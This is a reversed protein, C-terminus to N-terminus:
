WDCEYTDKIDQIQVREETEKGKIQIIYDGNGTINIVAGERGDLLFVGDFIDVAPAEICNYRLERRIEEEAIEVSDTICGGAIDCVWYYSDSYSTSGDDNVWYEQELSEGAIDLLGDDRRHIHARHIKNNSYLFHGPFIVLISDFNIDQRQQCYEELQLCTDPDTLETNEAVFVDM